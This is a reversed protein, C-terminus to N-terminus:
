KLALLSGLFGFAYSKELSLVRGDSAQTFQYVFNGVVVVSIVIYLFRIWRKKTITKVAQFVYLDILGFIAVFIIWRIM